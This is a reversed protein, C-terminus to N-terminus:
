QSPLNSDAVEFADDQTQPGEPVKLEIQPHLPETPAQKPAAKFVVKRQYDAMTELRHKAQAAATTCEFDSNAAIDRYINEAAAFNGLEEECLGLGFKAAATLSPNITDGGEPGMVRSLAESYGAKARNIQTTVDQEDVTGARYHLEMRLAEAQKILALAAMQDDKVNRAFTQFDEATGLLMYSADIGQSQAQLIQMKRQPLQAILKTFELQKRVSEVNKKYWRFIVLGIVLVVVVSVYIIMKLNEKAWQPLNTLWEALENTKLEHRHESKM